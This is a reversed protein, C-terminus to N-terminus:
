SLDALAVRLAESNAPELRRESAAQAQRWLPLAEALLARGAATLALRRSRRDGPDVTVSVLGRRQLPKLNATLTTRDMGLLAAVSGPSATGPRNLAMLLSFQTNALGVPRLAEDYRRAVVRAARQLHLCLCADRVQQTIHVPLEELDAM